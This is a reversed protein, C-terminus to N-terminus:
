TQEAKGMTDVETSLAGTFYSLPKVEIKVTAGYTNRFDVAYDTLRQEMTTYITEGTEVYNQILRYGAPLVQVVESVNAVPAFDSETQDVLWQMSDSVDEGFNNYMKSQILNSGVNIRPRYLDAQGDNSMVVNFYFDGNDLEDPIEITLTLGSLGYVELPESAEFRAQFPVNFGGLVGSYDASLDYEGCEDGRIIWRITETTQGPIEGISVSTDPESNYAEMVSLGEPLHLEVENDLLPFDESANNLIHLRVDFMDKLASAGVPIDLYAVSM